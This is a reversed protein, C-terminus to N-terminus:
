SITTLIVYLSSCGGGIPGAKRRGYLWDAVFLVAVLFAAATVTLYTTWQMRRGSMLRYALGLVAFLLAGAWPWRWGIVLPILILPHPDTSPQDV